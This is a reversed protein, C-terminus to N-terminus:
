KLSGSNNNIRANNMLLNSTPTRSAVTRFNSKFIGSISQPTKIKAISASEYLNRSNNISKLNNNFGTNNNSNNSNINGGAHSTTNINPTNINRANSHLHPPSKLLM